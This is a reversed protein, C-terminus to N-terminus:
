SLQRRRLVYLGYAAALFITVYESGYPVGVATKTTTYGDNFGDTVSPQTPDGGALNIIITPNHTIRLQGTFFGGGEPPAFTINITLSGPTAIDAPGADIWDHQFFGTTVVSTIDIIAGGAPNDVTISRTAGPKVNGFNVGFSSVPVAGEGTLTVVDSGAAGDHNVTLTGTTLGPQTKDPAFTVSFTQSAGVALVFPTGPATHSFAGTAPGVTAAVISSITLTGTGPNSVTISIDKTTELPVNGFDLATSSLLARPGPLAAFANLRGGTTTISNLSALPDVSDYLLTKVEAYTLSPDAAWILAAAGSVHPTAMSTGSKYGYTGGPTTSLISSGPAGIDVSTAGFNSFSSILDNHDTSAVSIVNATTYNSPYHPIADNNTGDNGAAAVFLVGAAEAAQIATQLSSSFGGGGWSNNTLRVTIGRNLVLDTVYDIAEIADLTSGSGADDLTKLPIMKVTWAVGTVGAGNNGVAGVTGAVHTGHGDIPDDPDNDENVFDWGRVDDIYGNGDTDAGNLVEGPNSWINAALDPHDWDIGTDIIGVITTNSGTTADWAEPADIDDDSTGGTQGTNNLGWMSPYNTDNPTTALSHVIYNPEASLCNPDALFAAIVDAMDANPDVSMQVIGLRAISKMPTAGVSAGAAAASKGAGPKFRVLVQGPVYDQAYAEACLCFVLLSPLLLRGNAWAM